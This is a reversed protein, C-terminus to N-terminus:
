TDDLRAHTSKIIIIILNIVGYPLVCLTVFVVSVFFIVSVYFHLLIV